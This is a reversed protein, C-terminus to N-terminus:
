APLSAYIVDFVISAARRYDYQAMMEQSPAPAFFTSPSLLVECLSNADGAKFFTVPFQGYVERFVPIDSVIAPVGLTMAELPPIGFGEYESPQVLGEADAILQFLEENSVDSRFEILAQSTRFLTEAEQDKSRINKFDGVIVLKKNFGRSRALQYAAILTRLGKHRKINGIFLIYPEPSSSSNSQRKFELIGRSVGQYSNHIPKNGGFHHVIRSKSFESVTILRLKDQNAPLEKDLM